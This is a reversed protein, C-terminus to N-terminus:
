KALKNLLRKRLETNIRAINKKAVRLRMPNELPTIAHSLKMKSFNIREANLDERLQKDSLETIAKQKM